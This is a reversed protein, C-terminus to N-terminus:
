VFGFFVFVLGSCCLHLEEKGDEGHGDRGGGSGGGWHLWDLDVGELGFGLDSLGEHALGTTELVGVVLLDVEGPDSVEGDLELAAEVDVLPVLLGVALLINADLALAEDAEAQAWRVGAGDLVGSSAVGSVSVVDDVHVAEELGVELAHLLVVLLQALVGGVVLAVALVIIALAIVEVAVDALVVAEDGVADLVDAGLVVWVLVVFLLLLLLELHALVDLALLGLELFIVVVVVVTLEVLFLLDLVEDSWVACLVSTGDVKTHEGVVLAGDEGISVSSGVGVALEGSVVEWEGAGAEDGHVAEVAHLWLVDVLVVVSVVVLVLVKDDLHAFAEVLTGSLALRWESGSTDDVLGVVVCAVVDGSDGGVELVSEDGLCLGVGVLGGGDEDADEDDGEDEEGGVHEEESGLQITGADVERLLGKATALRRAFPM